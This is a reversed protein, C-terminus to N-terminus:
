AIKNIKLGKQPTKACNWTSKWTKEDDKCTKVYFNMRMGPIQWDLAFFINIMSLSLATQLCYFNIEGPLNKYWYVITFKLKIYVAIIMDSRTVMLGVEPAGGWKLVFKVYFPPVISANTHYNVCKFLLIKHRVFFISSWALPYTNSTSFSHWLAELVVCLLHVVDTHRTTKM